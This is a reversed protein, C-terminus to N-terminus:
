EEGKEETGAKETKTDKGDKAHDKRAGRHLTRTGSLYRMKQPRPTKPTTYTRRDRNM